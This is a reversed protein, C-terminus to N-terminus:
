RRHVLGLLSWDYDVNKLAMITRLPFPQRRNHGWLLSAKLYPLGREILELPSHIMSNTFNKDIPIYIPFRTNMRRFFLRDVGFKTMLPLYCDGTFEHNELIAKFRVEYKSIVDWKRSEDRVTSWFHSWVHSRILEKRFCMFYSQIHPRVFRSQTLGWFDCSRNEMEQFIPSLSFLPGVVSSNLLLIEQWEQMDEKLIVDRWAAFDFGTNSRVHVEHCVSLLQRTSEKSLRSNSM